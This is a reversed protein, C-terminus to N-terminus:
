LGLRKRTSGSMQLRKLTNQEGRQAGQAAASQMGNQFQDATVYDVSNIREVTYRVDIPASTAVGGGSDQMGGGGGNAPIVGGGRSGRSYRSMSERMKSEPIVYEPEGGEGILANTPRSVFGGEAFKLPTAVAQDALNGTTFGGSDLVSGVAASNPDGGSNGMGAFARAIGIAIYTAIMQTATEMLLNAITNLFAAFAEEASKTGVVVQQLNNFLSDVVPGTIGLADNFRAQALAAENIAPQYEKYLAIQNELEVAKDVLALKEQKSLDTGFEFNKYVMDLEKNMSNLAETYQLTQESQLKRSDGFVPDLLFTENEFPSTARIAQKASTEANIQKLILAQSKTSRELEFAADAQKRLTTANERAAQAEILAFRAVEKKTRLVEKQTANSETEFNLSAKDFAIQAKDIDVIAKAEALRGRILKLSEQEILAADKALKVERERFNAILAAARIEQATRLPKQEDSGRALPGASVTPKTQNKLFEETGDSRFVVGGIAKLAKIIPGKEEKFAVILKTLLTIFNILGGSAMVAGALKLKKFANDFAETQKKFEQLEGKNLGLSSLEEDLTELALSSAVSSLGIAELEKILGKTATGSVPLADTLAQLNKTPDELAKGLELAAKIMADFIGGVVSGAIGGAFSAGKGISGGIGGGIGGGLASFSPGGFLLPFGGGLLAGQLINGSGKGGAGASSKGGKKRQREQEALFAPSGPMTKTGGIPSSRQKGPNLYIANIEELVRLQEELQVTTLRALDTQKKSNQDALRFRLAEVELLDGQSVGIARLQKVRQDYSKGVANKASVRAQALDTRNIERQTALIKELESNLSQQIGVNKKNANAAALIDEVRNGRENGPRVGARKLAKELNAQRELAANLRGTQQTKRDAQVIAQRNARQVKKQTELQDTLANNQEIVADVPGKSSLDRELRNFSTQIKKVLQTSKKLAQEAELRVQIIAAYTQAM